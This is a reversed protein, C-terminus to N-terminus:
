SIRMWWVSESHQPCQLIEASESISEMAWIMRWHGLPKRDTFSPLNDIGVTKEDFDGLEQYRKVIMSNWKKQESKSEIFYIADSFWKAQFSINRMAPNDHGYWYNNSASLLLIKNRAARNLYILVIEVDVLTSFWLSIDYLLTNVEISSRYILSILM